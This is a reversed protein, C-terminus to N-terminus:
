EEAKGAKVPRAGTAIRTTRHHISAEHMLTISIFWFRIFPVNVQKASPELETIDKQIQHSALALDVPVEKTMTPDISIIQISRPKRL